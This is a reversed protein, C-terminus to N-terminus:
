STPARWFSASRCAAAAARTCCTARRLGGAPAGGRQRDPGNGRDGGDRRAPRARAHLGPGLHDVRGAPGARGGGDADRAIGLMLAVALDATSDTLVDPTHGVPIGRATAAELDINDVGVAYNSIARLRPAADLLDATVPDTLMALLGESESARARLEEPPPPRDEPWVSVDHAAALRELGGGPLRRAVFARM